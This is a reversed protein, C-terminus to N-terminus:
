FFTLSRKGRCPSPLWRKKAIKQTRVAATKRVSRAAYACKARCICTKEVHERLQKNSRWTTHPTWREYQQRLSCLTVFVNRLVLLKNNKLAIEFKVTYKKISCWVEHPFCDPRSREFFVGGPLIRCPAALTGNIQPAYVFKCTHSTEHTCWCQM